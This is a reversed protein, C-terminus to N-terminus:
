NKLVGSFGLEKLEELRKRRKEEDIKEIGEKWVKKIESATKGCSSCNESMLEFGESVKRATNSKAGSSRSSQMETHGPWTLVELTEKECFPCPYLIKPHSKGM